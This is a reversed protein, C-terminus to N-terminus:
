TTSCFVGGLHAKPTTLNIRLALGNPNMNRHVSVPVNVMFSYLRSYLAELSYSVDPLGSKFHFNQTCKDMHFNLTIYSQDLYAYPMSVRTDRKSGLVLGKEAESLEKAGLSPM